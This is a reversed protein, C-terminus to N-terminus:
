KVDFDARRVVADGAHVELTYAGAPLKAIPLNLEVPVLPDGPRMWPNADRPGSDIKEQGTARELIRLQVPPLKGAGPNYLEFYVLGNQGVRFEMGGMPVVQRGKAALRRPGELMSSVLEATVDKIPYDEDCLVIASASLSQGNWPEIELPKEAIGFTADGSGVAMRFKYKGPALDVQRAYRYRVKMFQDLEDQTDFDLKVTDPARAAASGDERYAVGSVTLEAHKGRVKMARPDVDMAIDVVAAGPKAYFWSLQLGAVMSGAAGSAARAELAKQASNLTPAPTRGAACYSDRADVDLGSRDMKVKLKHCPQDASGGLPAFGLLYYDSEDRSISSLYSALDYEGPPTYKGGTFVSLDHVFDTHGGRDDEPHVSPHYYEGGSIGADGGIAFGYLSVDAANCDDATKRIKAAAPSVMTHLEGDWGRFPGGRNGSFGYSFFVMAKRGRVPALSAAVSSIRDLFVDLINKGAPPKPDGSGPMGAEPMQRLAAKVKRADTTFPQQLRMEGNVKSFVALYLDPAASRDVFQMVEDRLGPREHEFVLSIFHKAAHGPTEPSELSFSTIKQEKGDEFIKFDNRTLDRQFHGKKDTVVADVLVEEAGARFTPVQARLLMPAALVSAMPVVLYHRFHRGLM